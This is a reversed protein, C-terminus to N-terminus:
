EIERGVSKGERAQTTKKKLAALKKPTAGKLLEALSYRKRAASHVPRAVFEGHGIVIEVTTGVEIKLTKLVASPVTMIAAGGQKRIHVTIM